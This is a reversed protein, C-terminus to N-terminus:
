RACGAAHVRGRGPLGRRRGAGGAPGGRQEARQRARGSAPGVVGRHGRDAGPRDADPVEHAGAANSAGPMHATCQDSWLIRDLLACSVQNKAIFEAVGRAVEQSSPAAAMLCSALGLVAGFRSQLRDVARQRDGAGQAAGFYAIEDPLPPPSAFHNLAVLRALVDCDLLARGGEPCSALQACLSLTNLLLADSDDGGTGAAPTPALVADLLAQLHGKAVLLQACHALVQAGGASDKDRTVCALVATLAALSSLRWVVAGGPLTCDRGLTDMLDGCSRTVLAQAFFWLDFRYLVVSISFTGYCVQANDLCEFVLLAGEPFSEADVRQSKTEQSWSGAAAPDVGRLLQGPTQLLQVLAAALMGQQAPSSASQQAGSAAAGRGAGVALPAAVLPSLSKRSLLLQQVAAELAQGYQDPLLTVLDEGAGEGETSLPLLMLRVLALLSRSLQDCLVRAQHAPLPVGAALFSAAPLFLQEFALDVLRRAAASLGASDGAAPEELAFRDSGSTLLAPAVESAAGGLAQLLLQQTRGGATIMNVLQCWALCLHMGGAVTKHYVNLLVATSLAEQVESAEAARGSAQLLASLRRLDVVAYSLAESHAADQRLFPNNEEWGAGAKSPRQTSAAADLCQQLSPSPRRAAFPHQPFSGARQLLKELVSVTDGREQKFPLADCGTCLLELLLQAQTSTSSSRHLEAYRLYLTCTKLLWAASNSLAAKTSQLATYAPNVGASDSGASRLASVDAGQLLEDDSLHMLYVLLTLQSRLFDVKRGSIHRLAAGSSASSACLRYVLEYCDVAQDPSQQLFTSGLPVSSPSLLYTVADLCGEACLTSPGHASTAFGLLQHSLSASTATLTRLLLSLVAERITGGLRLARLYEADVQAAEETSDANVMTLYLNPPSANRTFAASMSFLSPYAASGLCVVEYHLTGSNQEDESSVESRLAEACGRMLHWGAGAPRDPASQFGAGSSLQAAPILAALLRSAPLHLAVYELLRVALVNVSPLCPCSRVHTPVVQAILSLMGSDRDACLLESLDHAVVPLVAVRGYEAVRTVTVKSPASRLLALFKEERLACEYVLGVAAAVCREQWFVPDCLHSERGLSTLDLPERDEAPAQQAGSRLSAGFAATSGFTPLSFDFSSDQRMPASSPHTLQYQTQLLDVAAGVESVCHEEFSREITTGSCELLVYGIYDFLRARGLLQAMLVFAASKPRSVRQPGSIGEITYEGVQDRFDAVVERLLSLDAGASTAAARQFIEEAAVVSDTPVANVAYHQLVTNLVGLCQATIRWRQARASPWDAPQYPRDQCKLLVEEVVYDLYVMLGPRRYGLGLTADPVGHSLLAELLLLFGETVPYRGARSEAEELEVRLGRGQAGGRRV